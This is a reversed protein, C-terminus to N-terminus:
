TSMWMALLRLQINRRRKWFEDEPEDSAEYQEYMAMFEEDQGRERELTAVIAITYKEQCCLGCRRLNGEWVLRMVKSSVSQRFIAAM